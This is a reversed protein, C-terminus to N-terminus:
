RFQILHAFERVCNAAMARYKPFPLKGKSFRFPMSVAIISVCDVIQAPKINSLRRTGTTFNREFYNVPNLILHLNAADVDCDAVITNTNLTAFAASLSTKGTGGKGSLIVIENM